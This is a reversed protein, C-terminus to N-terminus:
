TSRSLRDMPDQGFNNTRQQEWHMLKALTIGDSREELYTASAVVEAVTRPITQTVLQHLDPKM